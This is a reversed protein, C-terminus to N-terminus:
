APKPVVSFGPTRGRNTLRPVTLWMLIGAAILGLSVVMSFSLPGWVPPEVRIMEMIYRSTGKLILMLAFVRGAPPNLSLFALCVAAIFFANFASYLETPHVPKARLTDM